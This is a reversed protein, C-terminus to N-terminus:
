FLKRGLQILGTMRRACFRALPPLRLAPVVAYQLVLRQLTRLHRAIVVLHNLALQQQKVDGLLVCRRFHALTCWLFRPAVLDRVYYLSKAPDDPFRQILSELYIMRSIAMRPSYSSSRHFIRWRSLSVPNFSSDFGARFLRLFLDDDEYGSLRNDFGGVRLFAHRSILSASPLIFMDQRLCNVLDLKPHASQQSSRIMGSCILEGAEDVEDLDSYSWGFPVDRKELFPKVLEALHNPYWADDQDLFAILDGHAHDVGANRAASQGANQQQILRLNYQAALRRIKEVGGDTSGDDVVIIEDVPLTQTAISRIAEEIFEAGNYLPVIATILPFRGIFGSGANRQQDEPIMGELEAIQGTCADAWELDGSRLSRRLTERVDHVFRPIILDRAYYIGSINDDPYAEVLKRAFRMRSVSMRRTFSASDGHVRWRSLRQDLYVNDYGARFLRLFLDDDEYGSLTEDFGGVSTLARRSILSASPLIFQDQRLYETVSTKPHNCRTNALVAHAVVEGSRSVEDLNSYTWGLERSRPELFPKILESLHTPYWADDQDLLAILDGTAHRIGFNRASSQGGNKCHLLIIGATEAYRAVIDPGSDTSGDNVVIVEVPQVTQSLVSELAEAIFSAGNFLPIVVSITLELPETESRPESRPSPYSRPDSILM